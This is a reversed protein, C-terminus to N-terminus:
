KSSDEYNQFRSEVLWGEEPKGIEVLIKHKKQYLWYDRFWIPISFYDKDMLTFHLHPMGSAGSNGVRAIMQGAKVKDGVKVIVSNQKLHCYFSYEGDGHDILVKNVKKFDAIKGPPNDPYKQTVHKVIGDGVAYVPLNWIYFDENSHPHKEAIRGFENEKVIDYAWIAFCKMQHHRTKDLLIRYRGKLPFIYTRKPKYEKTLQKFIRIGRKNYNNRRLIIRVTEEAQKKLDWQLCLRIIEFYEKDSKNSSVERMLKQWFNEGDMWDTEGMAFGLKKRAARHNPSIAVIVEYVQKEEKWLERKHCWQALDWLAQVGKKKANVFAPYFADRFREKEKKTFIAHGPYELFSEVYKWPIRKTVYLRKIKIGRKSYFIKGRYEKTKKGKKEVVKD